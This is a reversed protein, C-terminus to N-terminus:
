TDWAKERQGFVLAANCDFSQCFGTSNFDGGAGDLLRWRKVRRHAGSSSDGEWINLTISFGEGSEASSTSGWAGAGAIGVEGIHDVGDGLSRDGLCRLSRNWHPLADQGASEGTESTGGAALREAGTESTTSTTLKPLLLLVDFVILGAFACAEADLKLVRLRCVEHGFRVDLIHLKM